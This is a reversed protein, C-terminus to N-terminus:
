LSRTVLDKYRAIIYLSIGLSSPSTMPTLHHVLRSDVSLIGSLFVAPKIRVSPKLTTSHKSDSLLRGFTWGSAALFINQSM